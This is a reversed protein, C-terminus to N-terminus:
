YPINTITCVLPWQNKTNSLSFSGAVTGSGPTISISGEVKSYTHIYKLVAEATNGSGTLTNKSINMNLNIDKAYLTYKSTPVSDSFSWVRGANPTSDSDYITLAGGLQDKGSISHSKASFGGSWTVGIFDEGTACYNEGETHLGSNDWHATGTLDCSVGKSTNYVGSFTITLRGRSNTAARPMPSKDLPGFNEIGIAMVEDKSLLRSDTIVLEDNIMDYTEEVFVTASISGLSGSNGDFAVTSPTTETIIYADPFAPSFIKFNTNPANKSETGVALATTTAIMLMCFAVMLSTFKKAKKM